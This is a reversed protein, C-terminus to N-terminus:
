QDGITIPAGLDLFCGVNLWCRRGITLKTYLEIDGTFTPTGWMLTGSGIQFGALRLVAVRLRSGVHIPLPMLILRALLLRLHLGSIEEYVVRKLKGVRWEEYMPISGM